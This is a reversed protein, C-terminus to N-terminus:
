IQFHPGDKLTTWDGGWVIEVGEERAAQKFAKAIAEYYKWEWTVSGGVYAAVDIARGTLHKSHLTESAGIAVLERQREITRLGETVVFDVSSIQLARHSLRVLTPHVGELNLLSRKSFIFSHNAGDTTSV